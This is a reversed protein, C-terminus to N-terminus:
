FSVGKTLVIFFHVFRTFYNLNKTDDYDEAIMVENV